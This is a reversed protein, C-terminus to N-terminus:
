DFMCTADITQAIQIEITGPQLPPRTGQTTTTSTIMILLPCAVGPQPRRYIYTFPRNATDAGMKGWGQQEIASVFGNLISAEDAVAARLCYFNLIAERDCTIITATEPLPLRTAVSEGHRALTLEHPGDAHASTLSTALLAAALLRKM